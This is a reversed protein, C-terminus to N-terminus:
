IEIQLYKGEIEYNEFQNIRKLEQEILSIYNELQSEEFGGTKYDVVLIKGKENESAKQIMVRDLRYLKNEKESYISYEPYIIDWEKSFIIKNEELFKEIGRSRLIKQLNERGFSAGYKSIVSKEAKEREEATNNIINELFFHVATGTERKEERESSYKREEEELKKINEKTKERDYVAESFDLIFDKTKESINKSIEDDTKESFVIEGMSWSKETESIYKEFVTERMLSNEKKMKVLIIFLNNKPRTLAVYLNNIEEEERRQKKDEAYDYSNELYKLVKEFSSDIIMYNQVTEYDKSMCINFQVGTDAKSPTEKHIYLVTDFELGKSKHISMLVVANKMEISSQTYESSSSNDEAEQLFEKLNDFKKITDMFNYVNQVDSEGSYKKLIGFKLIIEETLGSLKLENNEFKRKIDKIYELVTNLKEDSFKFNEFDNKFIVLEKLSNDDILIIDDRLFEALYFINDTVLYKLFKMVPVATRHSFIDLNTELFYPIKNESLIEAMRDLTANNRALIGIGKYNGGFKEKIIEATRYLGAEEDDSSDIIEVYGKEEKKSSKVKEFDWHINKTKACCSYKEFFENTFEVINKCSRYSTDLYEEKGETIKALNVFLNKDGGRWGYISQKEDGVCIVKEASKVMSMFIKWQVVSTDQFEDIFITSIGSELIDRMYDTIKNENVLNLREDNLYELTYNTIDNHTFKREKFKIEDYINYIRELFSFIEKEYPILTDNYIRGALEKLLEEHLEALEENEEILDLAKTTKTKQGNKIEKEFIMSWNDYIFNEKEEQTIKDLYPYYEKKIFNKLTEGAKGKKDCIDQLIELSKDLQNLTGKLRYNEREFNKGYIQKILLSKWREDIINKIIKVYSEASREVNAELFNKLINFDQRNRFIREFCRKLYEENGGDDIIDYSNINLMPAVATKFILNKLGDITFIKLSDRNLIIEKYIKESKKFIDDTNQFKEPYLNKINEAIDENGESLEKLFDIIRSKIEAAAKKTFTMIVIDRIKEGDFLSAAYELALRYTKGTGASAKLIKREM